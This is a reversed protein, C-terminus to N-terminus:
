AVNHTINSTNSDWKKLYLSLSEGVQIKRTTIYLEYCLIAFAAAFISSKLLFFFPLFLGIKILLIFSM